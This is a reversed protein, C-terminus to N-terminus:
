GASDWRLWKHRLREREDDPFFHRAYRSELLDDVYRESLRIAKQFERYRQSYIKNESLNAQVIDVRPLNLFQALCEAKTSDALDHRMILVDFRGQQIRQYGLERPFAHAYVDIGTVDRLEDDFWTLPRTHPYTNLFIEILQYMSANVHAQQIQTRKDLGQFFASINRGIPERVMTVIKVQRDSEAIVVDHIARWVLSSLGAAARGKIKEKEPRRRAMNGPSLQHAHFPQYGSFQELTAVITKSAVKGMQYVLVPVIGKRMLRRIKYRYLASRLPNWLVDSLWAFRPSNAISRVQRIVLEM